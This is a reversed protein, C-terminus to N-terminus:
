PIDIAKVVFASAYPLMMLARFLGMKTSITTMRFYVAPYKSFAEVEANQANILLVTINLSGFKISLKKM